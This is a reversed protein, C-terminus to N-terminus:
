EFTVEARENDISIKGFKEMASQGFLLPAKQNHVVSAQINNLIRTGIRVTKLIIITGESVNGEANSFNASGVFDEKSIKGQKNLFNAETESISIMGAGTDFIFHMPIGDIDIPIQYVGDIKEMQVVTKESHTRENTTSDNNEIRPKDSNMSVSRRGSTSCGSCGALSIAVSVFLANLLKKM